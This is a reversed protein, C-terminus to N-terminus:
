LRKLQKRAGAMKVGFRDVGDNLDDLMANQEEIENGIAIGLHKQRQLMTTLQELQTDQQGIKDQQLQMLGQDDLPRTVDTEQPPPRAGFVRTVHRDAQMSLLEARNNDAGDEAISTTGYNGSRFRSVSAAMRGLKECDDQLKAVMESRRHLEGDSM